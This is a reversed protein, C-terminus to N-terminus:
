IGECPYIELHRNWFQTIEGVARAQGLQLRRRRLLGLRIQMSLQRKPFQVNPFNGSSFNIDSPFDGKPFHWVGNQLGKFHKRVINKANLFLVFLREVVEVVM